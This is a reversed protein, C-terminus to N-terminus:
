AEPKHGVAFVTEVNLWIGDETALQAVEELHERRFLDRSDPPVLELLGRPNSNWLIEWWDEPKALHYGLQETFVEIRELGAEVMLSRCYDPDMLQRAANITRPLQVGHAALRERLMDAMPQLATKGFATFAVKGGPRTVRTWERLAAAMDPMFFLGFSCITVHFYDRRFELNAADMVHLDVNSLAMKKVNFEAKALMNESLDIATVRGGPRIEQAMAMAVMGTGAAVDLVKDGPAPKLHAALRDACFPFFRLAPGDYGTAVTDFVSIVQRTHADNTSLDINRQFNRDPTPLM